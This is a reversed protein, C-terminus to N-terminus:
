QGGEGPTGLIAMKRSATYSCVLTAGWFWSYRNSPCRQTRPGLREACCMAWVVALLGRVSHLAAM